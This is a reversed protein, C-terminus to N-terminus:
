PHRESEATPVAARGGPPNAHLFYRTTGGHGSHCDLCSVLSEPAHEPVRASSLIAADHCTACATRPPAKLLAVYPSEHATHCWLCAVAAVPGHMLPKESPVAEHCKLCMDSDAPGLDFRREHCDACRDEAFPKHISYTPSQRIQEITAGPLLPANPDPVGDFFFSLLEYNKEV